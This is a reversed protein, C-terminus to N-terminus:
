RSAPQSLGRLLVALARDMADEVDDTRPNVVGGIMTCGILIDAMDVEAHLLDHLKARQLPGTFLTATQEAVEAMMRRGVDNTFLADDMARYLASLHAVMRMLPFLADASDGLSDAKAAIAEMEIAQVARILDLRDKFHRFLTSRGVGADEAIDELSIDSAGSRFRARAVEILRLRNRVADKRM